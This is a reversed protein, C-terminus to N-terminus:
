DTAAKTHSKCRDRFARMIPTQLLMYYRALHTYIATERLEKLQGGSAANLAAMRAIIREQWLAMCDDIEINKNRKKWHRFAVRRNATSGPSALSKLMFSALDRSAYHNIQAFACGRADTSLINKVRYDDPHLDSGNRYRIAEPAIAPLEPHHIGPRQFVSPRFLCKYPTANGKPGLPRDAMCFRDTVLEDTLLEFGSSGFDRRNIHLCDSEPVAAILDALTGDGTKVVLFENMDLAMAWDSERFEPFASARTYAQTKVQPKEARNYFYKIAGIKRLAFLTEHTLDDSDNQFIVIDTFGLEQHHAVWELFYPAENTATTVLFARMKTM